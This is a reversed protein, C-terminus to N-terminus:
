ALYEEKKAVKDFRRDKLDGNVAIQGCRDEKLWKSEVMQM